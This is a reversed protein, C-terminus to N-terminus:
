NPDYGATAFYNACEAPSFTDVIRGVADWL